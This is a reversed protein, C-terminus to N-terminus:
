RANKMIDKCNDLAYVISVLLVFVIGLIITKNM